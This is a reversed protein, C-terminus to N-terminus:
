FANALREDPIDSYAIDYLRNQEMFSDFADTCLIAMSPIEVKIDPFKEQDLQSHIIDRIYALGEAKGGIYGTGLCSIPTSPDLFDRNFNVPQSRFPRKEM